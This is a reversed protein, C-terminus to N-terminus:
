GLGPGGRWRRFYLHGRRITGQYAAGSACDIRFVELRQGAREVRRASVVRDCPFGAGQLSKTLSALPVDPGAALLRAGISPEAKTSSPAGGSASDAPPLSVILEAESLPVETGGAGARSPQQGCAAAMACALILGIIRM